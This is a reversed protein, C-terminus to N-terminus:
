ADDPLRAGNKHRLHWEVTRRLAEKNSVPQQFGLERIASGDFYTSTCFKEIRSATIPFDIGTVQASLDALSAIPKAVSLPIHWSPPRKGLLRYIEQVLTKTSLVPEDVYIFVELGESLRDTLFTTAAILNEIYSTTKLASGDGVMAFRGASISEILRYINTDPPNEPGYVASPRVMLIRCSPHDDAFAHFLQEAEAKSRGYPVAPQLEAGEDLPVDSPGMTSVTSYFVWDRVGAEEGAELLARTAEVNDHYYEEESIGWDGRAAALHYIRDVGGRVAEQAVAPDTLDGVVSTEVALDDM